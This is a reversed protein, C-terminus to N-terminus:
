TWDLEHVKLTCSSLPGDIGRSYSCYGGSVVDLLGGAKDLMDVLAGDVSM